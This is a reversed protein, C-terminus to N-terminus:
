HTRIHDCAEFSRGSPLQGRICLQTAGETLEIDQTRFQLILDILGDGDVDERHVGTPAPAANGPGLRLTAADIKSADLAASSLLAVPTKGKSRLNIPNDTSGPMVDIPITNLRAFDTLGQNDTVVLTISKPEATAPIAVM